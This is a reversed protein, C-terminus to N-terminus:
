EAAPDAPTQEPNEQLAQPAAQGPAHGRLQLIELAARQALAEADAADQPTADPYLPALHDLVSALRTADRSAPADPSDRPPADPPRDRLRLLDTLDRRLRACTNWQKAGRAQELLSTTQEIALGLEHDPDVRARLAIRRRAEAALRDYQRATLGFKRRAQEQAAPSAVCGTFLAVLSAIRTENDQAKTGMRDELFGSIFDSEVSAQKNGLRRM